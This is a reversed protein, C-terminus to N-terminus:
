MVAPRAIRGKIRNDGKGKEFSRLRSRLFKDPLPKLLPLHKQLRITIESGASLVGCPEGDIQLDAHNYIRFCLGKVHHVPPLVKKKLSSPALVSSFFRMCSSFCLCDLMGDSLDVEQLMLTGGGYSPANLFLLQAATKCGDLGLTTEQGSTRFDCNIKRPTGTLLTKISAPLYLLKRASAPMSPLRPLDQFSKCISADCGIGAYVAFTYSIEKDQSAATLEWTDLMSTKAERIAFYLGPLGMDEWSSLWGSVRALDNGTGMPIIALTPPKSLQVLHSIIQGVTGDGGCIVVLDARSACVRVQVNLREPETFIIRRSIAVPLEIAEIEDALRSGAGRGAKPNIFFVCKM